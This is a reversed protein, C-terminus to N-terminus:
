VARVRRCIAQQWDPLADIYADVRPDPLYTMTRGGYGLHRDRSRNALADVRHVVNHIVVPYGVDPRPYGAHKQPCSTSASFDKFISPFLGQAPTAPATCLCLRQPRIGAPPLKPRL